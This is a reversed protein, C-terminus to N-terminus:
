AALRHSRIHKSGLALVIDAADPSFQKGRQIRVQEIVEDTSMPPAYARDSRMAVVADCVSIISGLLAADSPASLKSPDSHPTHHLAVAHSVVPAFGCASLIDAGFRAHEDIYSREATTLSRPLALVDEQIALKGIDHFEAAAALAGRLAPDIRMRDAVVLALERVAVGHVTTHDLQTPGLHHQMSRVTNRAAAEPTTGPSCEQKMAAEYAQVMDHTCVRNRGLDKALYMARDMRRTADSQFQEPPLIDIGISATIPHEYGDLTLQEDIIGRIREAWAWVEAIPQSQRIVWFEEGGWRILTDSQCAERRLTNAFRRLVHDGCNHGMTDNIRKFHDIDLLIMALTSRRDSGSRADNLIRDAYRRNKLGTLPDTEAQRRLTELRRSNKRRELARGRHVEVASTVRRLLTDGVLAQDKRVFDVVGNRLAEIVVFQDESASIVIRPGSPHVEALDSLVETATHPHLNYDLIICDFTGESAQKIVEDRSATIVVEIQEGQDILARRLLRQQAPDDEALLISIKSM